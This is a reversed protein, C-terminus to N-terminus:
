NHVESITAKAKGKAFRINVSQGNRLGTADHLSKGYEDSVVSYGRALVKLPSMGDLKGCVNVIQNECAKIRDLVADCIKESTDDLEQYANELMIEPQRILYHNEVSYLAECSRQLLNDVMKNLRLYKQDVERKLAGVDAVAFEAAQSPTAARVDAALDCLTVDTEHGVASIIPVSCDAVARVVQEDNFCGLEEASGGGRGIIIVDVNYKQIEKLGRVIDSPAESGQVAVPSLLINVNPARKHTVNLIDHFVAGTQSTVVGIRKPLVPLKRKRDADFLGESLLKKKLEELKAASDGSGQLYMQRVVFHYKGQKSYITPRGLLVVQMGDQPTFDLKYNDGRFFSCQLVAESDKVSFYMHGSSHRKFGTIEGGVALGSLLINEDLYERIYENLKSVSIVNEMQM